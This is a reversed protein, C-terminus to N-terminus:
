AATMLGRITSKDDEDMEMIAAQLLRAVQPGAGTGSAALGELAKFFGKSQEPVKTRLLSFIVPDMRNAGVSASAGSGVPAAPDVVAAANVGIDDWYAAEDAERESIKLGDILIKKGEKRAKSAIYHLGDGDEDAGEGDSDGNNAQFLLKALSMGGGGMDGGALLDSIMLQMDGVDGDSGDDDSDSYGMEKYRSADMFTAGGRGKRRVAGDEDNAADDEEEEHEDDEDEDDTQNEVRDIWVKGVIALLRAGLTTRMYQVPGTSRTRRSGKSRAAKVTPDEQDSLVPYAGVLMQVRPDPFARILTVAIATRVLTSTILPFFKSIARLTILLASQTHAAGPAEADSPGAALEADFSLPGKSPLQVQTDALVALAAPGSGEQLLGHMIVMLMRAALTPLVAHALCQSVAPLLEAPLNPLASSWHTSIATALVAAECAVFQADSQNQFNEGRFLRFMVQLVGNSSIGAALSEPATALLPGCARVATAITKACQGVFEKDDSVLAIKCTLAIAQALAPPLAMYQNVTDAEKARAICERLVDVAMGVLPLANIAAGQRGGTLTAAEEIRALVSRSDMGPPVLSSIPLSSLPLIAVTPSNATASSTTVVPVQKGSANVQAPAAVSYVVTSDLSVVMAQLVSGVVPLVRSIAAAAAENYENVICGHIASSLMEINFPSTCFRLLLFLFTPTLAAERAAGAAPAYMMTRLALRLLIPLSDDTIASDALLSLVRDLVVPAAADLVPSAAPAAGSPTDEQQRVMPLLKVCAEVAALRIAVPLAPQLGEVAAQLLPVYTSPEACGSAALNAAAWLSRGIIYPANKAREEATASAPPFVAAAGTQLLSILQAVFAATDIALPELATIEKTKNKKGQKKTSGKALGAAEDAIRRATLKYMAFGERAPRAGLLLICAEVAKWASRSLVLCPSSAAAAEPSANLALAALATLSPMVLPGYSEVLCGLADFSEIRPNPEFANGDQAEEDRIYSDAQEAWTDLTANSVQAVTILLACAAPLHPKFAELLAEGPALVAAQILDLLDAVLLDPGFPDAASPDVALPGSGSADDGEAAEEEGDGDTDADVVGSVYARLVCPAFSMLGGMIAGAQAKIFPQNSFKSSLEMMLRIAAHVWAASAGRAWQTAAAAPASAFTLAAACTQLLAPTISDVFKAVAKKASGGTEGAELREDQRAVDLTELLSRFCGLASARVMVIFARGPAAPPPLPANALATLHPALAHGLRLADATSVDDLFGDLCKLAGDAQLWVVPNLQVAGGGGAADTAAAQLLGVLGELLGPWREPWDEKAIEALAIAAGHRIKSDGNGLLAPLRARVQAKDEEPVPTRPGAKRRPAPASGDEEDSDDAGAIPNWCSKIVARRLVTAALQRIPKAISGDARELVSLLVPGFGPTSGLADLEAEAAQVTADTASPNVFASLLELARNGIADATAVSVTEM